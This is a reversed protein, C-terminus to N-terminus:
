ATRHWMYVTLYPPLNSANGTNGHSHAAGGGTSGCSRSADDGLVNSYQGYGENDTDHMNWNSYTFSHTHSPIEDVTLAHGSTSHYHTASGGTSGATYNSGAGLLFRDEIREWTGGFLVAPSAASVSLYISGVPYIRDLIDTPFEQKSLDSRISAILEKLQSELENVPIMTVGDRVLGCYMKNLRLDTINSAALTTAGAPVLISALYIEDTNGDRVPSAFVPNGSAKGTKIITTTTNTSKNLQMCVVDIRPNQADAAPLTLTQANELVCIVGDDKGKKLWAIGPSVSIKLEGSATVSLNNGASFVGRNRTGLWAGLANAEYQVNNLAFTLM